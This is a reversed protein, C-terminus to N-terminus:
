IEKARGGKRMRRRTKEADQNRRRRQAEDLILFLLFYKSCGGVAEVWKCMVEKHSLVGDNCM